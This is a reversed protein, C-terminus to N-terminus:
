SSPDYVPEGLVIAPELDGVVRVALETGPVAYEPVLSAFALGQRVHHGYSGTM